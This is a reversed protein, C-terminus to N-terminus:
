NNKKVNSKSPSQDKSVTSSNANELKCKEIHLNDWEPKMEHVEEIDVDLLHLWSNTLVKLETCNIPSQIFKEYTFLEKLFAQSFISNKKKEDVVHLSLSDKSAQRQFMKEEITGYIFLRYIHVEKKQGERWIRAMAQQDNKPNWDPDFLIMRSAGIINLGCGGAKSSLLLINYRQNENFDQVIRMRQKQLTKGDLRLFELKHNRLFPEILNLVMVFNSVIILKEKNIRCLQAMNIIFQIKLSYLSRDLNEAYTLPFLSIASSWIEYLDKNQPKRFYVFDPHNTIKRLMDILLLTSKNFGKELSVEAIKSHLFSLYLKEQLKSIHLFVIYEHKPPLSKQLIDGTRRLMFSRTLKWLEESRDHAFKKVEETTDPEQADQIPSGYTKKFFRWTGLINENVLNCCTYFERITNQLPTGTMIIRHKCELSNIAEYNKTMYNKIKHGEDCIVLNCAKNLYKVYATFTEYSVLLLPIFSKCFINIIKLKETKTGILKLFSIHNHLWKHIEIEWNGILTAPCIVICKNFEKSIETGPRTLASILSLATLTKGLGMCDALIGGYYNHMRAGTVCEFLFKIGDHQHEKLYKNVFPDVFARKSEDLIFAEEPILINEPKKILGSVNKYIGPYMIYQKPSEISSTKLFDISSIKIRSIIKVKYNAIELIDDEHFDKKYAIIPKEFIEEHNENFLYLKGSEIIMRGNQVPKSNLLSVTYVLKKESRSDASKSERNKSSIEPRSFHQTSHGGLLKLDDM